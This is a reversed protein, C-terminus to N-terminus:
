SGGHLRMPLGGPDRVRGIGRLLGAQPGLIQVAKARSRPNWVGGQVVGRGMSPQWLLWALALPPRGLPWAGTLRLEAQCAMAPSHLCAFLEALPPHLLRLCGELGVTLGKTITLLTQWAKSHLGAAACAIM